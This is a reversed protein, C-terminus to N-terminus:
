KGTAREFIMMKAGQGSTESHYRWGDAAMRNLHQEVEDAYRNDPATHDPWSTVRYTNAKGSSSGDRSQGYLGVALSTIILGVVLHKYRM